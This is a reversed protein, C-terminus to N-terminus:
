LKKLNQQDLWPQRVAAVSDQWYEYWESIVLLM